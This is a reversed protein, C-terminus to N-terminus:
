MEEVHGLHGERHGHAIVPEEVVESRGGAFGYGVCDEFFPESGGQFGGAPDLGAVVPALDAVRAHKGASEGQHILLLWQGGLDGVAGDRVQGKGHM